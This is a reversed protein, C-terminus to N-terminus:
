LSVTSITMSWWYCWYPIHRLQGTHIVLSVTPQTQYDTIDQGLVFKQPLSSHLHATILAWTAQWDTVISVSPGEQQRDRVMDRDFNNPALLIEGAEKVLCDTCSDYKALRNHGELKDSTRTQQHPDAMVLEEWHHFEVSFPTLYKTMVIWVAQREM